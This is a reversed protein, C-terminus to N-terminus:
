NSATSIEGALGASRWMWWEKTIRDAVVAPFSAVGEFVRANREKWILWTVLSIVADRVRRNAKDLRKRAEYRGHRINLRIKAQCGNSLFVGGPQVGQGEELSAGCMDM